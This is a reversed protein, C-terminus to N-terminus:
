ALKASLEGWRMYLREVEAEAAQFVELRRALEHGDTAIAPDELALRAAEVATEAALITAEITDYERQEKFSLKKSPADTKPKGKAQAKAERAEARERALFDEEWQAYDAYVEAGGAGDLGLLVTSVRDILSRDHTILVVAGPFDVLSEELMELTSIDLDNTPEDLLLVDAQRLMLRAILVRAQEGGSLLGVPLDLQDPRLAFRKAWTVVHVPQGRYIVSDADPAFANRLTQDKDLQERKQDFTVISLSPASTVSGADPREEGALVRLLTSKGSGNPGVLGLRVGPSLVIDLGSFLTRGDYGRSLNEAVVLRKTQRGTGSFDIAAKATARNRERTAALNQMLTGAADIRAKAKTGRAKPGRRLWEIERRAKNALTRELAGQATLFAERAELLASYPGDVALVGEPYVPSLEVTRNAVNELFFRDHSVVVFAFLAGSLFRELWLISRLDLHNTPEDLLLVDPEAVLARAISLRKRWGGSLSEVSVTPDVFGLRGLVVAARGGAEAEAPGFTEAVARTVIEAVTDGPEFADQQSVYALRAGQRLTREGADSGILGAMIKLLTSKGSGNPGILGIREREGVALSIGSFLQRIGFSKSIGRLNIICVSM